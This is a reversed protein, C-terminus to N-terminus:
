HSLTPGLGPGQGAPTLVIGIYRQGRSGHVFLGRPREDSSCRVASKEDDTTMATRGAEALQETRDALGDNMVRCPRNGHNGDPVVVSATM